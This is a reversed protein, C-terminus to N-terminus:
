QHSHISRVEGVLGSSSHSTGNVGVSTEGPRRIRSSPQFAGERFTQPRRALPGRSMQPVTSQLNGLYGLVHFSIVAFAREPM